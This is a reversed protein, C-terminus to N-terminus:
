GPASATAGDATGPSAPTGSCRGVTVSSRGPSAVDAGATSSRCRWTRGTTRAPRAAGVVSGAPMWAHQLIGGVQEIPAGDLRMAARSTREARPRPRRAPGHSRGGRCGPVRVLAGGDQAVPVVGRALNRGGRQRLQERRLHGARGVGDRDHELVRRQGVRSARRGRWGARRMVQAREADPGLADHPQAHLAREVHHDPEEADELGAAGVQREIRAIRRLPEGEHQRVRSRRHQDRRPAPRRSGGFM